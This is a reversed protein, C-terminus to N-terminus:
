CPCQVCAALPKWCSLQLFIWFMSATKGIGEMEPNLCPPNAIKKM